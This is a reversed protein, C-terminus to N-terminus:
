SKSHKRIYQYVLSHKLVNKIKAKVQAKDKAEYAQDFFEWGEKEKGAYVYALLVDVRGGLYGQGENAPLSKIREDVARLSYEPFVHNAPVYKGAKTEYSFIVNVVPTESMSIENFVYYWFDGATIELAGDKDIDVFGLDAGERGVGWKETAFIERYAPSLDAIWQRGGRPITISVILQKGKKGLFSFLGFDVANGISHHPGDFTALVKQKRKLVVYNTDIPNPGWTEDKIKKHLKMVDYGDYSLTDEKTFFDEASKGEDESQSPTAKMATASPQPTAVVTQQAVPPSTKCASFILLLVFATIRHFIVRNTM